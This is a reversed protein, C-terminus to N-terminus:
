SEKFAMERGKHIGPLLVAVLFLCAPLALPM